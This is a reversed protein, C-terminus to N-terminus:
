EVGSVEGRDNRLADVTKKPVVIKEGDIPAANYGSTPFVADSGGGNTQKRSIQVELAVNERPFVQTFSVDDDNNNNEHRSAILTAEAYFFASAQLGDVLDMLTSKRRSSAVEDWSDQELM